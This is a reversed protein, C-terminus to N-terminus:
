AWWCGGGDGRGGSDVRITGGGPRPCDRVALSVTAGGSVRGCDVARVAAVRAGCRPTTMVWGAGVDGGGGGLLCAVVADYGPLTTSTLHSFRPVAAAVSDCGRRRRRRPRRTPSGAAASLATASAVAGRKGGFPLGLAADLIPAAPAASSQWSSLITPPSPSASSERAPSPTLSAGSQAVVCTPVTLSM